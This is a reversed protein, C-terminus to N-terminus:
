ENETHIHTNTIHTYLVCISFGWFVCQFSVILEPEQTCANKEQMFNDSFNYCYYTSYNYLHYIM